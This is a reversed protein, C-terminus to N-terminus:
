AVREVLCDTELSELPVWANIQEESYDNSNINHITHYFISALDQADDCSYQRIMIPNKM